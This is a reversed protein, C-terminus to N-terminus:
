YHNLWNCWKRDNRVCKWESNSAYKQVLIKLTISSHLQLDSAKLISMICRQCSSSFIILKTLAHSLPPQTKTKKQPVYAGLLRMIKANIFEVTGYSQQWDMMQVIHSNTYRYINRYSGRSRQIEQTWWQKSSCHCIKEKPTMLIEHSRLSFSVVVKATWCGFCKV